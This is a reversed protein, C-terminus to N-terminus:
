ARPNYHSWVIISYVHDITYFMDLDYETHVLILGHYGFNRELKNEKLSLWYHQIM